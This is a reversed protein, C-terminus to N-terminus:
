RAEVRATSLWVSGQFPGKSWEESTCAIADDILGDKDRDVFIARDIGGASNPTDLASRDAPADFTIVRGQDLHEGLFASCANRLAPFDLAEFRRTPAAGVELPIEILAEGNRALLLASKAPTLPVIMRTGGLNFGRALVDRTTVPPADDASKSSSSGATWAQVRWRELVDQGSADSGAVLLEWGSTAGVADVAHGADFTWARTRLERGEGNREHALLRFSSAGPDLEVGLTLRDSRLIERYPAATRAAEARSAPDREVRQLAESVIDQVPTNSIPGCAALLVLALALRSM